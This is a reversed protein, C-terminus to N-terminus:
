TRTAQPGALDIHTHNNPPLFTLRTPISPLTAPRAQPSIAPLPRPSPLPPCPPPGGAYILVRVDDELLPVLKAQYDRM